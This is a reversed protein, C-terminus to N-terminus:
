HGKYISDDYIIEVHGISKIHSRGYYGAYDNYNFGNNRYLALFNQINNWALSNQFNEIAAGSENYFMASKGSMTLDSLDDHHAHLIYGKTKSNTQRVRIPSIKTSEKIDLNNPNILLIKM